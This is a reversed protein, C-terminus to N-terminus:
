RNASSQQAGKMVENEKIQFNLWRIVDDDIKLQFDLENPLQPNQTKFQILFYRGHNFKDIRYALTKTGWDEVYLIEGGKNQIFEKIKEIKKKVEEENLTPKLVVVTEYYRLTKYHRVRPM